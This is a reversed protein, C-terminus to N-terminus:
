VVMFSFFSEKHELRKNLFFDLGIFFLGGLLIMLVYKSLEYLSIIKSVDPIFSLNVQNSLNLGNLSFLIIWILISAPVVALIWLLPSNSLPNPKIEIQEMVKNTFDKPPDIQILKLNENLWKDQLEEDVKDFNNLDQNM